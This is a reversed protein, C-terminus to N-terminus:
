YYFDERHKRRKRPYDDEEGGRRRKYRDNSSLEAITDDADLFRGDRRIITFLRRFTRDESLTEYNGIVTLQKRARTVAVNLRRADSLFGIKGRSNSRVLSLLIVEKERGQFGDVSQVEVDKYQRLLNGILKIQNNYPTIVGIQREKIGSGLLTQVVRQVIKAEGVNCFGFTPEESERARRSNTTDLFVLPNITLLNESVNSLDRLCKNAVTSSAKLKRDYFTDSSFRMINQNMRYQKTLIRCVSDGHLYLMREMISKQLTKEAKRDHIVAPLQKHDGALIVKRSKM